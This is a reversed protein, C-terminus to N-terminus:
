NLLRLSYLTVSFAQLLAVAIFDALCTDYAVQNSCLETVQFNDETAGSEPGRSGPEMRQTPRGTDYSITWTQLLTAKEAQERGMHSQSKEWVCLSKKTSIDLSTTSGDHHVM